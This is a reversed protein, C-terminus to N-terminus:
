HVPAARAAILALNHGTGRPDIVDHRAHNADRTFLARGSWKDFGSGIACCGHQLTLRCPTEGLGVAKVSVNTPWPCTQSVQVLAM